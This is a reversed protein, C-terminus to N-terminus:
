AALRIRFLVDGYEVPQGNAVLVEVIEGDVECEIENMVKMAEVICAVQGKAVRSGVEVFPPEGPRSASFFTGVIPSRLEVVADGSATESPAAPPAEPVGTAAAVEDPAPPVPEASPAPAPPAAAPRSPEAPAPGGRVLRLRCGDREFELSEIGSEALLAILERIEAIQVRTGEGGTVTV